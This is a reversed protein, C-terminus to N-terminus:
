EPDLFGPIMAMLLDTRQTLATHMTGPLIALQSAPMSLEGLSGGGLLRYLELTHEPQIIDADGAILLVPAKMNRIEDAPWDQEEQEFARVKALLGFWDEPKVATNLYETEYPSGKLAHEMFEPNFLTKLEPHRGSSKYSVSALILKRVLEPRRIAVQLAVGAGTSYGFIDSPPLNLVGLLEIVDDTYQSYSLPREPIDATHGYGQFEVAIVKRDKALLPILKGFATGIGSLAGPLLLLAKGKGYVEYYMKLGNVSAYGQEKNM